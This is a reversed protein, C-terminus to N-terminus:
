FLRFCRSFSLCSSFSIFTSLLLASQTTPFFSSHLLLYLIINLAIFTLWRRSHCFSPMTIICGRRCVQHSHWFLDLFLCYLGALLSFPNVCLCPLIPGGPVEQSRRPEQSRPERSQQSQRASVTEVWSFLWVLYSATWAIAALLFWCVRATEIDVKGMDASHVNRTSINHGDLVQTNQM